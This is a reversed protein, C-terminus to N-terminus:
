TPRYLRHQEIYDVVTPSLLETCPDGQQLRQRLRTASVDEAVGTLIRVRARQTPTLHLPALRDETLPYGPRTVVIWEALELLRAPERWHHLHLFSDAGALSFLTDNPHLSRLTTLADVTYNPRTGPHPRDLDTVTFRPAAQPRNPDQAQNQSQDREQTQADDQASAEACAAAVMALRDSFSSPPAQLKLPQRGTPAFLVQDLQFAEAAARAIAMHGRHPPDFTGGFFAIRTPTPPNSLPRHM